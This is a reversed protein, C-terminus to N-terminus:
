WESLHDYIAREIPYLHLQNHFLHVLCAARFLRIDFCHSLPVHVTTDQLRFLPTILLPRHYTRIFILHSATLHTSSVTISCTSGWSANRKKRFHTTLPSFAYRATTGYAYLSICFLRAIMRLLHQLRWTLLHISLPLNACSEGGHRRRYQSFTRGAPRSSTTCSTRGTM